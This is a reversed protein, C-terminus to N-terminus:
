KLRDLIFDKENKTFKKKNKEFLETDKNVIIAAMLDSKTEYVKVEEEEPYATVQKALEEASVQAITFKFAHVLNNKDVEPHGLFFSDLAMGRAEIDTFAVLLAVFGINGYNIVVAYVNPYVRKTKLKSLKKATDM